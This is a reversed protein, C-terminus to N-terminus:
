GLRTPQGTMRCYAVAFLLVSLPATFIVGVFCMLVGLLTLGLMVLYLLFAAGWNGKTITPSQKLPGIGRLDRDVLLFMFPWFMLAVIVGPVICAVIGFALMLTFLISNGLARLLYRGGAFLDSIGAPQGRVVKLLFISYGAWLFVQFVFAAVRLFVAGAIAPPLVDRGIVDEQILAELVASPIYAAVSLGSVILYAAISLGIERKYIEWSTSIVEGADIPIPLSTASARGPQAALMEGCYRCKIAAERIESGCVPCTKMRDSNSANPDVPAQSDSSPPVLVREGCGPCKAELGAKEDGTRLLKQCNPCRFEITM